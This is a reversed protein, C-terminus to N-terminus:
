VKPDPSGLIIEKLELYNEGCFDSSHELIHSRKSTPDNLVAYASRYPYDNGHKDVQVVWGLYVDVNVGEVEYHRGIPTDRDSLQFTDGDDNARSDFEAKFFALVEDLRIETGQPRDKHIKGLILKAWNYDALHQVAELKRSQFENDWYGEDSLLPLLVEITDAILKPRTSLDISTPQRPDASPYAISGYVSEAENDASFRRELILEFDGNDLTVTTSVRLTASIGGTSADVTWDRAPIRLLHSQLVDSKVLGGELCLILDQVPSHTTVKTTIPSEHM